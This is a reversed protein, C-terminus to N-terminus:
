LAAAALSAGVMAGAGVGTVRAMARRSDRETWGTATGMYRQMAEIGRGALVSGSWGVLGFGLGLAGLAFVTSEGARADGTWLALGVMAVSGLVLGVTAAGGVLRVRPRAWDALTAGADRGTADDVSAGDDARNRTAPQRPGTGM